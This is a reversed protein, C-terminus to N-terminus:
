HIASGTEAARVRKVLDIYETRPVEFFREAYKCEGAGLMRSHFMNLGKTSSVYDIASNAFRFCTLMELKQDMVEDIVVMVNPICFGWVEYGFVRVDWSIGELAGALIYNAVRHDPHGDLVFPVFVADVKREMLIRRVSETAEPISRALDAHNLFVPPEMDIVAAARRSEDNRLQNMEERTMGRSECEGAGDQLLVISASHKSAKQLALVGGCGITEDDQHPAVVLMSKGFPAKIPIARLFGSFYDTASALAQMRLDITAVATNMFLKYQSRSFIFPFLLRYLRRVYNRV